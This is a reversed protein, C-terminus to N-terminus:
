VEQEGRVVVLEMNDLEVTDGPYLSKGRKKEINGNLRVSGEQIIIKAQQGTEVVGAWKLFQGLTLSDTYIEVEKKKM